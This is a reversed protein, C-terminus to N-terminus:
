SGSTNGTFIADREQLLRSSYDSVTGYDVYHKDYSACAFATLGVFVLPAIARARLM